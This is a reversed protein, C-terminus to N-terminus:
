EVGLPLLSPPLTSDLRVVVTDSITTNSVVFSLEATPFADFFDLVLDTLLCDVSTAIRDFSVDMTSVVTMGISVVATDDDDDISNGATLDAVILGVTVMGLKIGDVVTAPSLDVDGDTVVLSVGTFGKTFGVPTVMLGASECCSTSLGDVSVLLGVTILRNSFIEM